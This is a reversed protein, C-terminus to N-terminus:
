SPSAPLINIIHPFSPNIQSQPLESSYQILRPWADPDVISNRWITTYDFNTRSWQSNETQLPLNNHLDHKITFLCSCHAFRHNCWQNILDNDQSHKVEAVRDGAHDASVSSPACQSSTHPPDDQGQIRSVGGPSWNAAVMNSRMTGVGRALGRSKSVRWTWKTTERTM